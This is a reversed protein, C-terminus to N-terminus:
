SEEKCKLAKGILVTETIGTTGVPNSRDNEIVAYNGKLAQTRNKMDAEAGGRAKDKDEARSSGQIEGLVECQFPKDDLRVVKVNMADPTAKVVKESYGCAFISSSGVAFLFLAPLNKM